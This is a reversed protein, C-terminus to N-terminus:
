IITDNLDHNTKNMGNMKENLNQM